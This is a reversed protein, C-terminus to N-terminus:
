SKLALSELHLPLKLYVYVMKFVLLSFHEIDKVASRSISLFV